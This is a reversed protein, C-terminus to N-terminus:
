CTTWHHQLVDQLHVVCMRSPHPQAEHSALEAICAIAGAERWMAEIEGARQVKEPEFDDTCASRGCYFRLMTMYFSLGIQHQPGGGYVTWLFIKGDVTSIEKEL